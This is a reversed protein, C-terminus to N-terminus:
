FSLGAGGSSPNFLVGANPDTGDLASCAMCGITIETVVEASRKAPATVGGMPSSTNMTAAKWQEFYSNEAMGRRKMTLVSSDRNATGM